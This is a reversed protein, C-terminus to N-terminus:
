AIFVCRSSVSDTTDSKAMATEIEHYDTEHLAMCRGAGERSDPLVTHYQDQVQQRYGTTSGPAVSLTNTTVASGAGRPVLLMRMTHRNSDVVSTFVSAFMYL